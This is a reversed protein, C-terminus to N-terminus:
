EIGAFSPGGVSYWGLKKIGAFVCHKMWLWSVLIEVKLRPPVM